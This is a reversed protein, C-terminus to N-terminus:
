SLKNKVKNNKNFCMINFVCACVCVCVRQLVNEIVSLVTSSEARGLANEATIVFEGMDKPGVRLILLSYVGCTNSIYYNSDTNLSISNLYWAIRPKPNGTVACTMYCEYGKPATHLKLPVTFTPACRLDCDRKSPFSVVFRQKKEGAPAPDREAEVVLWANCSVSGAEVSYIGKDLHTCDRILLRHILKHDSVMITYKDSEELVCNKVMWTVRPLPQTLVCEFLADEREQAKVEQIKVVFDVAALASIICLRKDNAPSASVKHERERRIEGVRKVVLHVDVVGFEQCINEYDKKDAHLMASWFKEEEVEYKKAQNEDDDVKTKRLLKRFDLPNTLALIILLATCIAKGYENTAICKYTDADVSTVNHIKLIHEGTAENFIMQYKEKDIINGKVRKWTVAPKPEGTVVAKFVAEKGEKTSVPALKCQFDPTSKGEPLLPVYQTITVGPTKSRIIILHLLTKTKQLAKYIIQRINRVNFLYFLIEGQLLTEITNCTYNQLDFTSSNPCHLLTVEDPQLGKGCKPTDYCESRCTLFM